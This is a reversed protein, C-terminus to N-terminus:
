GGGSVNKGKNAIDKRNWVRYGADASPSAGRIKKSFLSKRQDCACEGGGLPGLGRLQPKKGRVGRERIGKDGM